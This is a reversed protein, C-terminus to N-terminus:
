IELHDWKCGHWYTQTKDTVQYMHASNWCQQPILVILEEKKTKHLEWAEQLSKDKRERRSSQKNAAISSDKQYECRSSLGSAETWFRQTHVHTHASMCRFVSERGRRTETSFELVISLKTKCPNQELVYHWQLGPCNLKTHCCEALRFLLITFHLCPTLVNRKGLPFCCRRTM